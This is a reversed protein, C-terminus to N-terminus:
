ISQKKKPQKEISKMQTILYKPLYIIENTAQTHAKSYIITRKMEHENFNHIFQHMYSKDFNCM